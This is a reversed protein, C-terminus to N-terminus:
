RMVEPDVKEGLWGVFASLRYLVAALALRTSKWFGNRTGRRGRSTNLGYNRSM